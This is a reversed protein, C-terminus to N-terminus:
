PKKVQPLPAFVTEAWDYVTGGVFEGAKYGGYGGIICGCVGGAATGLPSAVSGVAAGAAGLTKCGAWGLAWATTVETARRIPKNAVVISIADIAAGLVVVTRGIYRFYKASQYALRAGRGISTHDQIGFNAHTGAQNWHFDIGKTKINYGYDLRLHRKGTVDQFFLTSTSGGQPVYGRPRFEICLGNTGPIPIRVVASVGIAFPVSGSWINENNMIVVCPLHKKPWGLRLRHSARIKATKAWGHRLHM